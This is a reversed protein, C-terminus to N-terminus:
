QLSSNGRSRTGRPFEKNKRGARHAHFSCRRFCVGTNAGRPGLFSFRHETHTLRIPRTLLRSHMGQESVADTVDRHLHKEKRCERGGPWRKEQFIRRLGPDHNHPNFRTSQGM